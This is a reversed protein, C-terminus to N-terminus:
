GHDEEERGEWKWGMGEMGEERGDSGVDGAGAFADADATRGWCRQAYRICITAGRAQSRCATRGGWVTGDGILLM